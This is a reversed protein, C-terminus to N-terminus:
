AIASKITKIAETLRANEERLTHIERILDTNNIVEDAGLMKIQATYHKIAAKIANIPPTLSVTTMSNSSCRLATFEVPLSTMLILMIDRLDVLYYQELNAWEVQKGHISIEYFKPVEDDVATKLYHPATLSSGHRRVFMKANEYYEVVRDYVARAIQYNASSM